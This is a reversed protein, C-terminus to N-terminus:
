QGRKNGRTEQKSWCEDTSSFVEVTEARDSVACTELVVLLKRFPGLIESIDKM